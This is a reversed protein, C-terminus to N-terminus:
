SVINSNLELAASTLTVVSTQELCEARKTSGFLKVNKATHTGTLNIAVTAAIYETRYLSELILLGM